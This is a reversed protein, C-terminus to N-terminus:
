INVKHVHFIKEKDKEEEKRPVDQLSQDEEGGKGEEEVLFAIDSLPHKGTENTRKQKNPVDEEENKENKWHILENLCDALSKMGNYEDEEGETEIRRRNLSDYLPRPASTSPNSTSPFEPLHTVQLWDEHKMKMEAM